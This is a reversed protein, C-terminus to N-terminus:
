DVLWAHLSSASM